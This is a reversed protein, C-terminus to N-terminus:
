REESRSTKTAPQSYNDGTTVYIVNLKPDIAPTSWIPAGSPGWLQTGVKNKTTPKAPEDITWTKWILKGTVANLAVLSGRFKCCEYAPVSGTGEEGSAVGVYIRGDYFVPSSTLRAVPFEDVKTKWLQTGTAANVAWAFGKGDGFFAANVPGTPTQIKAIAIADRVMSGADLYWHICGTAADLSYIKGGPSGVFVRGGAYTPHGNATLEGPFGFVWKLKLRPVDAASLGPANQFRSNSGDAGWGSWSPGSAPDFNANSAAPCMAQPSPTTSLAHGVQKGTLFEAIARRGEPPLGQAMTIMQGTEMEALVHEPTMDRFTQRQPARGVGTEHCQACNKQYLADGSQDQALLLGTALSALSLVRHLVNM